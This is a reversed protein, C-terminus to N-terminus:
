VIYMKTKIIVNVTYKFDMFTVPLLMMYNVLKFCIDSETLHPLDSVWSRTLRLSGMSIYQVKVSLELICYIQM